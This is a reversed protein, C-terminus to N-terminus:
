LDPLSHRNGYKTHMTIVIFITLLEFCQSVDFEIIVGFTPLLHISVAVVSNLKYISGGSKVWPSRHTYTNHSCMSREDHIRMCQEFTAAHIIIIYRHITAGVEVEPIAACLQSAYPMTDM